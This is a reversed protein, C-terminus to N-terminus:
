VEELKLVVAEWAENFVDISKFDQHHELPAIIEETIEREVERIRDYLTQCTEAITIDIFQTNIYKLGHKYDLVNIEHGKSQKCIANRLRTSCYDLRPLIDPLAHVEDKPLPFRPSNHPSNHPSRRPSLLDPMQQDYVTFLPKFNNKILIM